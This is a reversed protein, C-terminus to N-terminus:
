RVQAVAHNAALAWLLLAVLLRITPVRKLQMTQNWHIPLANPAAALHAPERPVTRPPRTVQGSELDEERVPSDTWPYASAFRACQATETDYSGPYPHPTM